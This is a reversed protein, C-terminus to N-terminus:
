QADNFSRPLVLHVQSPPPGPVAEVARPRPRHPAERVHPRRVITEAGSDIRLHPESVTWDDYEPERGRRPTLRRVNASPQEAYSPEVEEDTFYTDEWGDDYEEAIGFYVLTRNWLDGLGM